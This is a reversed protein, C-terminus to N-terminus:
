NSTLISALTQSTPKLWAPQFRGERRVDALLETYTGPHSWQKSSGNFHTFESAFFARTWTETDEPRVTKPVQASGLCVQHNGSVNFYPAHALRTDLTPRRDELLAFVRLQRGGAVFVLPPQHLECGDFPNLGIDQVTRFYMRRVSAPEYWAIATSCIGVINPPVYSLDSGAFMQMVTKAFSATIFRGAGLSLRNQRKLVDHETAICGGNKNEYLVIASRVHYETPPLERM